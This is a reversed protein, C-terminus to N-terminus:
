SKKRATTKKATKGSATQSPERGTVKHATPDAGPVLAADVEEALDPKAGTAPPLEGKKFYDQAVETVEDPDAGSAVLQSHAARFAEAIEHKSPSPM